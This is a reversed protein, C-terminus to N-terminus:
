VFDPKSKDAYIRTMLTMLPLTKATQSIALQWNSIAWDTM